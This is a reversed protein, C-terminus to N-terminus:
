QGHYGYVFLISSLVVNVPLEGTMCSMSLIIDTYLNYYYYPVSSM